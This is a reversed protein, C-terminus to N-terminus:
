VADEAKFGAHKVLQCLEKAANSVGKKNSNALKRIEAVQEASYKKAEIDSQKQAERSAKLEENQKKLEAIIQPDFKDAM